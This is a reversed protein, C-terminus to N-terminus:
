YLWARDKRRAAKKEDTDGKDSGTLLKFASSIM